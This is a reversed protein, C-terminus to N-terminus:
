GPVSTMEPQMFSCPTNFIRTVFGSDSDITVRMRSETSFAAAPLGFISLNMVLNARMYVGITTARATSVATTGERMVPSQATQILVAIVKRTILQGQASTILTGSAKKEPIPAAELSPIRKLPPRSISASFFILDTTISLVPVMVFPTKSTSLIDAKPSKLSFSIISIAAAHSAEDDWGIAALM